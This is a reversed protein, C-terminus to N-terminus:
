RRPKVYSEIWEDLKLFRMTEIDFQSKAVNKGAAQENRMQQLISQVLHQLEANSFHYEEILTQVAQANRYEVIYQKLAKEQLARIEEKPRNQVQAIWAARTYNQNKLAKAFERNLDNGEGQSYLTEM